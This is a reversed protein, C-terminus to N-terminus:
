VLALFGGMVISTIGIVLLDFIAFGRTHGKKFLLCIATICAAIIGILILRHWRGTFLFGTLDVTGFSFLLLGTFVVFRQLTTLTVLQESTHSLVQKLQSERGQRDQSSNM